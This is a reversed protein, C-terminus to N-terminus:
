AEKDSSNSFADPVTQLKTQLNTRLAHELKRMAAEGQAATAAMYKAIISTVSKITHGTIAAIEPVTAGADALM